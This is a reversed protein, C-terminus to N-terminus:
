LRALGLFREAADWVGDISQTLQHDDDVLRLDVNPRTSAWREVMVPDVSADQRGQFVLMPMKLDLAFADYRAADEYLAYGVRRPEDFAYHHVDLWGARRWEDIGHEGLQRLRNGGFDLAPAMLVLRDVKGTTDQAAAHLAVFAGLSSGVLAVPGRPAAAIAERAHDLMRTVTLTEFAPQNLDPCSFGVGRAELERAFRGAKSSAPSSAFGHLYVAHGIRM